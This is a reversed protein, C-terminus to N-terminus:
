SNCTCQRQTNMRDAHLEKNHYLNTPVTVATSYVELDGVRLYRAIDLRLPVLVLPFVPLQVLQYAPALARSLM